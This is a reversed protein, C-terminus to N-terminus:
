LGAQAHPLKLAPVRLWLAGNSKSALRTGPEGLDFTVDPDIQTVRGGAATGFGSGFGIHFRAAIPGNASRREVVHGPNSVVAPM